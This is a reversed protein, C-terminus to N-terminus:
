AEIIEYTLTQNVKCSFCGKNCAIDEQYLRIVGKRLWIELMPLLATKDVKLARSIQSLTAVRNLKIFDFLQLLM